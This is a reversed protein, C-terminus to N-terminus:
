LVFCPFSSSSLFINLHLILIINISNFKTLSMVVEHGNFESGTKGLFDIGAKRMFLIGSLGWTVPLISAQTGEQSYTSIIIIIYIYICLHIYMYTHRYTYTHTYRYTHVHIRGGAHLLNTLIKRYCLKTQSSGARLNCNHFCFQNRSLKTSVLNAYLM